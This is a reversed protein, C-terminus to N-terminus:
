KFKSFVDSGLLYPIGIHVVKADIEEFHRHFVPLRIKTVSRGPYATKSFRYSRGSNHMDLLEGSAKAYLETQRNGIVTMKLGSDICAGEFHDVSGEIFKMYVDFVTLVGAVDVKADDSHENNKNVKDKMAEILGQSVAADDEAKDDYSIVSHELQTSLDTLVLHVTNMKKKNHLISTSLDKLPLKLLTSLSLVIACCTGQNAATLAALSQYSNLSQIVTQLSKAIIINTGPGAQLTSRWLKTGSRASSSVPETAFCLWTQNKKLNYIMNLNGMSSKSCYFLNTSVHSLPKKGGDYGIEARRLFDIPHAGRRHSINVKPSLELM